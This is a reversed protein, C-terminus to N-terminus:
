YKLLVLRCNDCCFGEVSARHGANLGTIKVFGNTNKANEFVGPVEDAFSLAGDKSSFLCGRRMAKGCQPCIM